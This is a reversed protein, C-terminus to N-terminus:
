LVKKIIILSVIFGLIGAIRLVYTKDDATILVKGKDVYVMEWLPHQEGIVSFNRPAKHYFLSIIHTIDLAEKFRYGSLNYKEM